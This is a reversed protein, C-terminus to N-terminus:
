ADAFRYRCRAGDPRPAAPRARVIRSAPEQTRAIARDFMAVGAARGSSVAPFVRGPEALAALPQIRHADIWPRGNVRRADEADV